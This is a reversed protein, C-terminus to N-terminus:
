KEKEKKQQNENWKEIAKKVSTYPITFDCNHTSCCVSWGDKANWEYTRESVIRIDTNGCYKCPLLVRKNKETYERAKEFRKAM